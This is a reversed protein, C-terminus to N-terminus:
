CSSLLALLVGATLPNLETAAHQYSAASPVTRSNQVYTSSLLYSSAPWLLGSFFLQVFLLFFVLLNLSGVLGCCSISASVQELPSYTTCSVREGAGSCVHM